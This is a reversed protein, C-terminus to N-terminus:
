LPWVCDFDPCQLLWVKIIRTSHIGKLLIVWPGDLEFSNMADINCKVLTIDFRAVLPVQVLMHPVTPDPRVGPDSGPTCKEPFGTEPDPFDPFGSFQMFVMHCM